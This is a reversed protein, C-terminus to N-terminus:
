RRRRSFLAKDIAKMGNVFVLATLGITGLIGFTWVVDKQAQKWDEKTVADM